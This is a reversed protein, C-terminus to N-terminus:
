MTTVTKLAMWAVALSSRFFEQSNKQNERTTVYIADVVSIIMEVKHKLRCNFYSKRLILTLSM